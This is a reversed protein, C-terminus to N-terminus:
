GKNYLLDHIQEETEFEVVKTNKLLKTEDTTEYKAFEYGFKMLFLSGLVRVVYHGIHVEKGIEKSHAYFPMTWLKRRIWSQHKGLPNYNNKDCLYDYNM